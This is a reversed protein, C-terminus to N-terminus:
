MNIFENKKFFSQRPGFFVETVSEVYTYERHAGVHRFGRGEARDLIHFRARVAM